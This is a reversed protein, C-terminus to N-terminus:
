SAQQSQKSVGSVVGLKTELIIALVVVDDVVAEAWGVVVEAWGVVVDACGVVTKTVWDLAGSEEGVM